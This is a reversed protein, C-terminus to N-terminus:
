LRIFGKFASTVSIRASGNGEKFASLVRENAFQMSRCITVNALRTWRKYLTSLSTSSVRRAMWIWNGGLEWRLRLLASFPATSSQHVILDTILLSYGCPFFVFVGKQKVNRLRWWRKRMMMMDHVRYHYNQYNPEYDRENMMVGPNSDAFQNTSKLPSCNRHLEPIIVLELCKPPLPLCCSTTIIVFPICKRTVIFTNCKAVSHSTEDLLFLLLRRRGSLNSKIIQHLFFDM